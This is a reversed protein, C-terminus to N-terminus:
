SIEIKFRSYCSVATSSLCVDVGYAGACGDCRRLKLVWLRAKRVEEL